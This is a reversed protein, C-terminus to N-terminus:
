DFEGKKCIHFSVSGRMRGTDILPTESGKRKMTAEKNPAFDGSAIENQVQGKVYNGIQMLATDATGGNTIQRIAQEGFKAINEGSKDATQRLFPRAPINKSPVGLENWAAIDCLDTETGGNEGEGSSEAAQGRQFGVRVQLEKLEDLQKFFAIGEPTLRDHGAM